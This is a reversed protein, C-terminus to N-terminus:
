AEDANLWRFSRIQYARGFKRNIEKTLQSPLLEPADKPDVYNNEREVVAECWARALVKGTSDTAEGYARIIFSDSRPSLVPAIPTLIDAQDVISAIGQSILGQEAEPFVFRNAADATVNRYPDSTYNSNIDTTDIASQVAGSLAVSKDTGVRRNVFDALSLFPGRKRVENVIGQALADIQVETLVRRGDWHTGPGKADSGDDLPGETADRTTLLSATPTGDSQSVLDVSGDPERQALAQHNLGSLMAKWAQVSTSNVNFLGKVRLLSATLFTAENKPTTGNFLRALIDDVKQSGKQPLYRSNPLNEQDRFFEDAVTKQDRATGTLAPEPAISSFFWDDWLGRNALYSHDALPRQARLPSTMTSETKDPPIVSPAHSNGIAHSIQPLLPQRGRITPRWFGNAGSNQLAGLSILPERPVSYLTLFPTGTASGYGGGFYGNGDSSTEIKDNAWSNLSEINIEYPLVDLEQNTLDYFENSHAQPNYRSFSKTGLESSQETKVNYSYIMFPAKAGVINAPDITRTQGPGSFSKFVNPHQDAYLRESALKGVAGKTPTSRYGSSGTDITVGADISIGETDRTSKLYINNMTLGYHAGEGNAGGWVADSLSGGSSTSKGATLHNPLLEYNFKIGPEMVIQAGAKEKMPRSIGAGHNFGKYAPLHHAYKFYDGNADTQVQTSGQSVKIVEGPKLVLQEVGGAEFSLYNYDQHGLSTAGSLSTILPSEIPAKGDPLVRITYPIVWYKVAYNSNQPIVVPVDLPNWIMMVPDVVVRMPYKTTTVGEFTRSDKQSQFSFIAQYSIIAPLKFPLFPDEVAATHGAKVSLNPTGSPISGGTTYNGGSTNLEKYLNYYGWLELLNIGVEDPKGKLNYLRPDPRDSPHNGTLNYDTPASRELEMSLDKRFGGKTVNTLLGTSNIALDHFLPKSAESDNSFFDSQAWSYHLAGLRTDELDGDKFPHNTLFSALEIGNRPTAQLSERALKETEEDAPPKSLGFMAKVGQDGTWWALNGSHQAANNFVKILPVEVIGQANDGVTGSNVIQVSKYGVENTKPADKNLEKSEDSTVLWSLFEPSPRTEPEPTTSRDWAKYVGTWHRRTAHASTASGDASNTMQDATMTIRRDDGTYKQLQGIAMTLALRANAQALALDKGNQSSRLTVTSLSLLGIVLVSLLVMLGLTVVLAFGRQRIGREGPSLRSHTQSPNKM